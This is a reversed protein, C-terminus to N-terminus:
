RLIVVMGDRDFLVRAGPAQMLQSTAASSRKLVLLRYGSAIANWSPGPQAKFDVIAALESGSLLEFRADYAVRGRLEPLRWLLWDAYREDAFVRLSHDATIPRRVAALGGVPYYRGTPAQKATAAAAIMLAITVATVLAVNLRPHSRRPSAQARVAADISLPLVIVAALNFWVVNRGAVIAGASLLLMAGREWLTTQGRHRGFSWVVIGATLFFPAAILPSNTVPGWETLLSRFAGNFLTTGYYHVIALGYPTALLCLPAGAILGIPRIWPRPQGRLQARREWLVTVGRLVVLGAGLSASGHVNGWLVLLPLCWWVRASPRRGDSALLWFVASFLPYSWPQARVSTTLAITWVVLPLVRVISNASAGLRRAALIAMLLGGLVLAANVFGVLVVGGAQNLEYMALQALWQQDIWSRGHALVTLSERHPIGHEAVDRGALLALWTDQVIDRGLLGLLAAALSALAIAILVDADRGAVRQL